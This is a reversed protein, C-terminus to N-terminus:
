LSCDVIEDPIMVDWTVEVTSGTGFADALTAEGTWRDGSITSERIEGDDGFPDASFAISGGIEEVTSGQVSVEVSDATGYLNLQAGQGQAIPQLDIQDSGEGDFPICRNLFTVAFENGDVTFSGMETVPPTEGGGGGGAAATTDPTEPATTPDSGGDDGGNGSAVTTEAGGGDDTEGETGGCAAMVVAFLAILILLPRRAIVRGGNSPVPLFRTVLSGPWTSSHESM